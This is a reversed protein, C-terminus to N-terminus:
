TESTRDRGKEEKLLVTLMEKLTEVTIGAMRADQVADSLHGEVRRLYQEQMMATNQSLVFCGKGQMSAAFGEQELESYARSTTIVSIHLDKALQRISPLAEGERLEGNLIAEKIQEKIQEYIPQDSRNSIVIRM